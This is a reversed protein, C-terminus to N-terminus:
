HLRLSGGSNIKCPPRPSELLHAISGLPGRNAAWPNEQPFLPCFCFAYIASIAFVHCEM